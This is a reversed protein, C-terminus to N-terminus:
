NSIPSYYISIAPIHIRLHLDDSRFQGFNKDDLRLQESVLSTEEEFRVLQSAVNLTSYHAGEHLIIERTRAIAHEAAQMQLIRNRLALKDRNQAPTHEINGDINADAAWCKPPMNGNFEALFIAPLEPNRAAKGM